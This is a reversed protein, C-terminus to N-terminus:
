EEGLIMKEVINKADYFNQIAENKLTIYQELRKKYEQAIENQINFNKDEYPILINNLSDKVIGMITGGVVERKIQIQAMQTKLYAFVYYPNVEKKVRLIFVHENINIEKHPYSEPIIGVKGTTAGDKVLIIDLPFARSTIHKHHFDIPIYKLKEPEILGNALVHEGGLSPVGEKIQSVGGQPRQGSIVTDIIDILPIVKYKSKKISLAIDEFDPQYYFADIRKKKINNTSIKYCQKFKFEPTCVDLKSYIENEFSNIITEAEIEKSSKNKYADQMIKVIKNQIELNKELDESFVPIKLECFEKSNINPQGVPRQISNVWQKYYDTQSYYFLFDPNLKEYNIRFRILYGAFISKGYKTKYIFCKGATAGSRAFLIDNEQLEYKLDINEATKVDDQKLNGFEDIDTIRIYRYETDESCEKASENAGYQPPCLLFESLPRYSIKSSMAKSLKKFSILFKPDFREKIEKSRISFCRM